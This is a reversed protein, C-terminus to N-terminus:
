KTESKDEPIPEPTKKREEQIGFVYGHVLLAGLLPLSTLMIVALVDGARSLNARQVLYAVYVHYALLPVGVFVAIATSDVAAHSRVDAIVRV